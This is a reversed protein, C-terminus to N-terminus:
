IRAAARAARLISGWNRAKIIAAAQARADALSLLPYCPKLTFRRSRGNVRIMVVFAKCGGYSVRVGFGPTLTDWYDVEGGNSGLKSGQLLADSLKQRTHGRTAIHL